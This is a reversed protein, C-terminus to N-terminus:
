YQIEIFAQYFARPIEEVWTLEDVDLAEYIEDWHEKMSANM